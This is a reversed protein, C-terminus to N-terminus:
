KALIFKIWYIKRRGNEQNFILPSTQFTEISITAIFVACYLVQLSNYALEGKIRLENKELHLTM